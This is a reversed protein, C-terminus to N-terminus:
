YLNSLYKWVIGPIAEDWRKLLERPKPGPVKETVIQPLGYESM